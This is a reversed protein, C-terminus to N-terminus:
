AKEGYLGAYEARAALDRITQSDFEQVWDPGAARLLLGKQELPAMELFVGILENLTGRALLEERNESSTQFNTVRMLSAEGDWQIDPM